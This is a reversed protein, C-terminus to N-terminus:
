FGLLGKKKKPPPDYFSGVFIVDSNAYDSITYRVDGMIPINYMTWTGGANESKYLVNGAGYYIIDGIIGVQKVQPVSGIVTKSPTITNLKEWKNGGDKTVLALNSYTIYIILPNAPHMTISNIASVKIGSVSSTVKPGLDEWKGGRDTSKVLGNSLRLIIGSTNWFDILIDKVEVGSDFWTITEWERGWNKSEIFGGQATGIYILNQSKPDIEVAYVPKSQESIIYAQKWSKGGDETKLLEGRNNNLTAIYVIDSNGKEVAIDYVAANESLIGNEDTIKEWSDAGNSSKYLGNATTGLYLINNNQPDMKMSLIKVSDILGGGEIDVKQEWTKGGDVSKFVGQNNNKEPAKTTSGSLNLCGTFSVAMLAVLSFLFIKNIKQNM